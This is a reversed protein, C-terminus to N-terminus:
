FFFFQFGQLVLRGAMWTLVTFGLVLKAPSKHIRWNAACKQCKTAQRVSRSSPMTYITPGWHTEWATPWTTTPPPQLHDCARDDSGLDEPGSRAVLRWWVRDSIWFGFISVWDETRAWAVVDDSTPQSSFFRLFRTSFSYIQRTLSLALASRETEYVIRFSAPSKPWVTRSIPLGFFLVSFRFWFDFVSILFCFDFDIVLFRRRTNQIFIYKKLM